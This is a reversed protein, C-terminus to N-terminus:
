DYDVTDEEESSGRSLRDPGEHEVMPYSRGSKATLIRGRRVGTWIRYCVLLYVPGAPDKSLIHM